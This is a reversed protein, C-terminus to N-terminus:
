DVRTAAVPPGAIRIRGFPILLGLLVLLTIALKLLDALCLPDTRAFLWGIFATVMGGIRLLNLQLQNKWGDRVIFLLSVLCIVFIAGNAAQFAESSREFGEGRATIGLAFAAVFSMLSQFVDFAIDGKQIQDKGLNSLFFYVIFWLLYAYRLVLDYPFLESPSAPPRTVDLPVSRMLAGLFGGVTGAVWLNRFAILAKTKNAKWRTEKEEKEEKSDM